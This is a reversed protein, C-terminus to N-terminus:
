GSCAYRMPLRAPSGTCRECCHRGGDLWAPASCGRLMRCCNTCSFSMDPLHPTRPTRPPPPERPPLSRRQCAPQRLLPSHSCRQRCGEGRQSISPVLERGQLARLHLLLYRACLQIFRGFLRQPLLRQRSVLPRPFLVFSSLPTLNPWAPFRRTGPVHRIRLLRTRNCWLLEAAQALLWKMALARVAQLRSPAGACEALRLAAPLPCAAFAAPQPAGPQGQPCRVERSGTGGIARKM